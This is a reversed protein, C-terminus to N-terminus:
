RPWGWCGGKSQSNLKLKDTRVWKQRRQQTGLQSRLHRALLEIFVPVDELIGVAVYAYQLNHLARALAEPSSPDTCDSATGCLFATLTNDPQCDFTEQPCSKDRKVQICENFTLNWTCPWDQKRYPKLVKSNYSYQLVCVNTLAFRWWRWLEWGASALTRSLCPPCAAGAGLQHVTATPSWVVHCFCTSLGLMAACVCAGGSQVEAFDVFPMHSDFTMADFPGLTGEDDIPTLFGRLGAVELPFQPGFDGGDIGTAVKALMTANMDMVDYFDYNASTIDACRACDTCVVSYWSRWRITCTCPFAADFCSNSLYRSFSVSGTKFIRNYVMRRPPPWHKGRQGCAWHDVDTHVADLLDHDDEDVEDVFRGADGLDILLPPGAPPASPAVQESLATAHPRPTPVELVVLSTYTALMCAAVVGVFKRM